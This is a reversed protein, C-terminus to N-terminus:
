LSARQTELAPWRGGSPRFLTARVSRSWTRDILNASLVFYLRAGGPESSDRSLRGKPPRWTGRPRALSRM